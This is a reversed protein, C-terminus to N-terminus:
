RVFGSGDHVEGRVAAVAARAADIPLVAGHVDGVGAEAAKDAGVGADRASSPGGDGESEHEVVSSEKVHPAADDGEDDDGAGDGIYGVAQVAEEPAMGAVGRGNYVKGVGIGADRFSFQGGDSESEHVVGSGAYDDDADGFDEWDVASKPVLVAM